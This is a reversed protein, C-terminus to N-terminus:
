DYFHGLVEDDTKNRKAATYFYYMYRQLARNSFEEIKEIAHKAEDLNLGATAGQLMVMGEDM